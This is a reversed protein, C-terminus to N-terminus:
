ARTVERGETCEAHMAQRRDQQKENQFGLVDKILKKM